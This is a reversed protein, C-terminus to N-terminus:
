VAGEVLQSWNSNMGRMDEWSPCAKRYPQLSESLLEFLSIIFFIRFVHWTLVLVEGM